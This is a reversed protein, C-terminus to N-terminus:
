ERNNEKEWKIRAELKEVIENEIEHLDLWKPRSQKNIVHWIRIAVIHDQIRNRDIM